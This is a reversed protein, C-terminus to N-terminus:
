DGNEDYVPSVPVTRFPITHQYISSSTAPNTKVASGYISEGLTIFRNFQHEINNRFSFRDARTDMYVGKEGLYGASLFFNTNEKNSAISLNYEQETGTGFMVDMWDTDPLDEISEAGLVDLTSGTGFADRARIWEETNLLRIDTTINRVGYRANASITALDGERGRRTTILIVGGAARSGYIAASGADKLIEVSAVDRMNLRFGADQAVGDVVYLPAMGNLSGAGRIIIDAQSGPTGEGKTVMVGAAMGSISEALSKSSFDRIDEARVSSVSGTLESRKQTGYGIVVVEDLSQVDEQLVVNYIDKAETITEQYPEYGVFTVKLIGGVPASLEFNGNLDTITGGTMEDSVNVTITAGVVIEQHNDTVSGTITKQQQARAPTGSLYCILGATCAVISKLHKM